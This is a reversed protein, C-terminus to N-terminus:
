DPQHRAYRIVGVVLVVLLLGGAGLVVSAAVDQRDRRQAADAQAVPTTSATPAPTPTPPTLDPLDVALVASDHGETGIWIRRGGPPAAVSEGQRQLPLMVSTIKDFGPFTYFVASIYTRIVVAHQGPLFSADTAIPPAPAVATLRAHGRDFVRPPTRYVHPNAYEKSVVYARGTTADYLLGEADRPGHPYTLTAADATVTRYGRDPQPIKYLTVHARDAYNDGVDGIVLSGDSGGAMAEMDVADVGSLTTIGVLRGSRTDVVYVDPGDGSDNMTYALHHHTTSVVLSSSEHIQPADM